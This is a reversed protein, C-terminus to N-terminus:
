GLLGACTASCSPGQMGRGVCGTFALDRGDCPKLWGLYDLRRAFAGVTGARRAPRRGRFASVREWRTTSVAQHDGDRTVASDNVRASVLLHPIPRSRHRGTALLVASMASWDALVEAIAHVPVDSGPTGWRVILVAEANAPQLCCSHLGAHCHCAPERLASARDRLSRLCHVTLSRPEARRAGPGAITTM